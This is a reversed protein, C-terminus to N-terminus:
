LGVDEMWETFCREGAATMASSWRRTDARLGAVSVGPTAAIEGTHGIFWRELGVGAAEAHFQLALAAQGYQFAQNECIDTAALRTGGDPLDFTDGHWHLVATAAGDLHRLCSNQGAPTLTLPAWGIEKAPAPYVRAGLARAMLQAGLCIGLTPRDAALRWELLRAEDALFPYDADDMAGIPGGLVVLLAPEIPDLAAIDDVGAEVYRVMHGRAALLPALLGVDEFGVHRIAIIQTM